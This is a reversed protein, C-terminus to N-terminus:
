RGDGQRVREITEVEFPLNAARLARTLAEAPAAPDTAAQKIPVGKGDVVIGWWNGPKGANALYDLPQTGTKGDAYAARGSGDHGNAGDADIRMGATFTYRQVNADMPPLPIPPNSM